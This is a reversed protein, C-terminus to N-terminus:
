VDKDFYLIWAAHNLRPISTYVCSVSEQSIRAHCNGRIYANSVKVLSVLKGATAITVSLQRREVASPYYAQCQVAASSVM